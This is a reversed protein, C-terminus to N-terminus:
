KPWFVDPAWFVFLPPRTLHYQYMPEGNNHITDNPMMKIFSPWHSQLPVQFAKNPDRKLGGDEIPLAALEKAWTRIHKPCTGRYLSDDEEAEYTEEGESDEEEHQEDEDEDIHWPDHHSDDDGYGDNHDDAPQVIPRPLSSSVNTGSYAARQEARRKAGWSGKPRGRGRGTPNTIEGGRSGRGGSM